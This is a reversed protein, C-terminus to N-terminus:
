PLSLPDPSFLLLRGAPHSRSQTYVYNHSANVLSSYHSARSSLDNPLHQLLLAHLDYETKRSPCYQVGVMTKLVVLDTVDENPVLLTSGV